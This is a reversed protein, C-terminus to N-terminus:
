KEKFSIIFEENSHIQFKIYLEVDKFFSRYVDQWDFFDLHLPAMSKYFDKQTMQQIVAVVDENSFGLERQDRRASSTMKLKDPHDFVAQIHKLDYTPKFKEPM